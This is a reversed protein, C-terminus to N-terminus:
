RVIKGTVDEFYRFFIWNRIVDPFAKPSLVFTVLWSTWYWFASRPRLGIRIISRIFARAGERTPRSRLYPNPRYHRLFQVIRFFYRSPSYVRSVIYRFGESQEKTTMSKPIVNSRGATNDGTSLGTIRGERTLRETLKTGPLAELLGTMATMIGLRQIFAVMKKSTSLTDPDFGYVFGGQVGIGRRHFTKVVDYIDTQVNIHKGAGELSKTEPTEVGLFILFFGAKQLIQAKRAGKLDSQSFVPVYGYKRQFGTFVELMADVRYGSVTLNDDVFFVSKEHWGQALGALMERVIQNSSKTRVRSGNLIWVNCFDCRHPCGRSFQLAFSVYDEPNALAWLPVPSKTLDPFEDSNMRYVSKPTGAHLDRLFRPLTVEAEGLVLYALEQFVEPETTPLPGGAVTMVGCERGLKLARKMSHRHITMGGTMLMDVGRLDAETIPGSVNEDHLRMNWQRPLLAAVTLLGLPPFAAKKERRPRPVGAIRASVDKRVRTWWWEEQFKLAGTFTWYTDPCEPYLLLVNMTKKTDM